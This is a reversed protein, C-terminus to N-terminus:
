QILWQCQCDDITPSIQRTQFRAMENSKLKSESGRRAFVPQGSAQSLKLIIDSVGNSSLSGDQKVTVKECYPAKGVAKRQEVLRFVYPLKSSQNNATPTTNNTSTSNSHNMSPQHIYIFGEILTNNFICRLLSDGPQVSTNNFPSQYKTEENSMAFDDERLIVVQDYTTSFHYAANEEGSGAQNILILEVSQLRPAQQGLHIKDNDVSAGLSIMTKNPESAASTSINLQFNTEYACQWSISENM